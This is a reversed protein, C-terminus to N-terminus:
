ITINNYIYEIEKVKDKIPSSSIDLETTHEL